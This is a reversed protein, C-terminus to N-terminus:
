KVQVWSAAANSGIYTGIVINTYVANTSACNTLCVSNYNTYTTAHNLNFANTQVYIAGNNTPIIWLSGPAAWGPNGIQVFTQQVTPRGQGKVKAVVLLTAVMM